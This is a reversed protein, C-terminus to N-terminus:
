KCRLIEIIERKVGDSISCVTKYTWLGAQDLSQEFTRIGGGVGFYHIKAALLIRGDDSLLTNFVDLLKPYNAVDYITESTLILDFKQGKIKAHFDAWDGSFLRLKVANSGADIRNSLCNPMTIFDIVEQNFDQV